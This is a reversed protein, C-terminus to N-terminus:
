GEEGPEREGAVPWPASESDESCENRRSEAGSHTRHTCHTRPTGKRAAALALPNVHYTPSRHGRGPEGADAGRRLYGYQILLEVVPDLDGAVPFRRRNWQHLDRRSILPPASESYETDESHRCISAWVQRADDQRSDAG